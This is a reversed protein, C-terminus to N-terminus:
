VPRDGAITVRYMLREYDQYDDVAYHQVLRNDWIAVTNEAWRFRCCFEPRTAHEFLWSLLPQSEAQSMGEFRLTFMPNVFLAKRGTFPHTRVVPHLVEEHISDSWSYTIATKKQYKEQTGAVTYAESASHVAQMGALMAKMADSLRDYALAQHAFLTDGGVPPITKSYLVSGMSPCQQFTNDSHWGTGFSASEGAPKWVKTVQPMDELGDVIPHVELQGFRSGFGALSELNLDQDPMFVVGYTSLTQQILQFNTESLDALRVGAILAGCAGTVPQIDLAM